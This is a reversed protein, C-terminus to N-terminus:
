APSRNKDFFHNTGLAEVIRRTATLRESMDGPQSDGKLILAMQSPQVPIAVASTLKSFTECGINAVLENGFITLWYIGPLFRYFDPVSVGVFGSVRRGGPLERLFSHKANFEAEDCGAGFLVPLDSCLRFVWQMWPATAGTKVALTEVWLHWTSLGHPQRAFMAQFGDKGGSVFLFGGQEYLDRAQQYSLPSFPIKADENVDFFNPAIAPESLRAWLAKVVAETELRQITYLTLKFM